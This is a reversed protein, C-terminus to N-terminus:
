RATGEKTSRLVKVDDQDGIPRSPIPREVFYHHILQTSLIGALAMDDTEGVPRDTRLKAVLARVANPKFYGTRSLASDSLLEEVYDPSRGNGFFCRHVPARYPRKRRLLIEPPVMNQAMRKLLYKENLGRLKLSPPLQCCFEVVRKDLFPFRGEVSHAMAMRDGQSSLLYPSLFMVAEIYQAKELDGWRGFEPPLMSEVPGQMDPEAESAIEDSLFRCARHNNRWRILHSYVPLDTKVLEQGFFAALFSPSAKSFGPIDPYLRRFLQPRRLSGPQRSWFRRLRNEKFLDYGALFEDAGEGTLVVKFGAKHVLESLLFMPAPATRMLPTEAHLCVQPFVRAIDAHTATMVRHETGLFRAMREQFSSEDFSSDDFAISFSCLRNQHQRLVMAAITSSDLGGSLYAGVPVDARLRIRTADELLDRFGSVFSDEDLHNLRRKPQADPFRIQWYQREVFDRANVLAFRGPQLEKIGQFVTCSPLPAWYTFVQRLAGPHFSASIGSGALVAKIESAFFLSGEHRAYFLPRVGLRDRALFLTQDRANWIALAFQGNLENLCAHGCEEYLHLIVETDTQTSFLHGRRELDRRLEVYNFVEGNLVIWLTRDENCLPQRGTRLDIISLRASGLAAAGDLYLGFQDPGRHRISAVMRRLRTEADDSLGGPAFIGAIGCM